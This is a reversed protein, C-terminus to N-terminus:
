SPKGRVWLPVMVFRDIRHVFDLRVGVVVRISPPDPRSVVGKDPLTQFAGSMVYKTLCRTQPDNPLFPNLRAQCKWQNPCQLQLRWMFFIHLSIGLVALVAVSVAVITEKVM